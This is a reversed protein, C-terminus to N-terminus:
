GAINNMSTEDSSISLLLYTWMQSMDLLTIGVKLSLVTRTFTLIIM